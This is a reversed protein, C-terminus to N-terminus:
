AKGKVKQLELRRKQAGGTGRQYLGIHKSVYFPSGMDLREALWGNSVDTTAKLHAAVAVKWGANKHEAVAGVRATDPLRALATQLAQEWRM